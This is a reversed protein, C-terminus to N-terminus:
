GADRDRVVVGVGPFGVRLTDSFANDPGDDDMTGGMCREAVWGSLVCPKGDGESDALGDAGDVGVPLFRALLGALEVGEVDFFCFAFAGGDDM